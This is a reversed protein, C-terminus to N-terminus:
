PKRCCYIWRSRADILIGFAFSRDPGLAKELYWQAVGLAPPIDFIFYQGPLTSVYTHALRGYGAGVEAVRPRPIDKLLDAVVNCEVISSALDQSLLRGGCEIRFPNGIEPENVHQRM